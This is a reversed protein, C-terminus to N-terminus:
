ASLRIYSYATGSIVTYYIRENKKSFWYFLLRINTETQMVIDEFIYELWKSKNTPSNDMGLRKETM